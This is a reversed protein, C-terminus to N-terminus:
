TEKRYYHRGLVWFIGVLLGTLFGAILTLVVDYQRKMIVTDTPKIEFVPENKVTQLSEGAHKSVVSVLATSLQKAEKETKSAFRIGINQSSLKKARFRGAYTSLGSVTDPLGGQQFIEREISPTQFWSMLTEAFLDSAQIAYFGDYQYDPTEERHVRVINLSLSADYKMPLVQAVLVALVAAVVATSVILVM